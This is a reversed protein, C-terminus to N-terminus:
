SFTRTYRGVEPQPEYGLACWFEVAPTDDSLVIASCRRMGHTRLHSEAARVLARGIGHRRHDPVVALRYLNGRWGDWGVIITGVVRGGLEAVLLAQSDRDLLTQVGQADDTASPHAEATWWVALVEGIDDPRGVRLVVDL